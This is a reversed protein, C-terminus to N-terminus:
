GQCKSRTVKLLSCSQYSEPQKRRRTPGLKLYRLPGARQGKTKRIFNFKIGRKTEHTRPEAERAIAIM